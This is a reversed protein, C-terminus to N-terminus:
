SRRRLRGLETGLRKGRERRNKSSPVEEISFRNEGKEPHPRGLEYDLPKGNERRNGSSPVEKLLFGNESM